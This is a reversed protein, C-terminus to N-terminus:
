SGFSGSPEFVDCLWQWFSSPLLSLVLCSPLALFEVFLVSKVEMGVFVFGLLSLNM